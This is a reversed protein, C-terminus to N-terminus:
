HLVSVLRFVINLYPAKHYKTFKQFIISYLMRVRFLIQLWIISYVICWYIYIYISIGILVRHIWTSIKTAKRGGVGLSGDPAPASYAPLGLWMDDRNICHSRENPPYWNGPYWKVRLTRPDRNLWTLMMTASARNGQTALVDAAMINVIYFIYIRTKSSSANETDKGYWYPPIVYFTFIHKHERQLFEARLPNIYVIILDKDKVLFNQLHWHWRLISFHYFHLSLKINHLCELVSFTFHNRNQRQHQHWLSQRARM